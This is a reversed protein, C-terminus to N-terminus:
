KKDAVKLTSEAELQDYLQNMSLGLYAPKIGVKFTKAQVAKRSPNKAALGRRLTEEITANMPRGAEHARVRLEDLLADSINLTTRM